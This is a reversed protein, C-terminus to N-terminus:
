APRRDVPAAVVRSARERPIPMPPVEMAEPRTSTADRADVGGPATVRTIVEPPSRRLIEAADHVGGVDIGTGGDELVLRCVDRGQVERHLVIRRAAVLAEVDVRARPRPVFPRETRGDQNRLEAAREAVGTGGNPAVPELHDQGTAARAAHAALVQPHRRSGRSEIGSRFLTTYPFLTSRPPRRIM